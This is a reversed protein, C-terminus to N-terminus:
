VGEYLTDYRIRFGLYVGGTTVAYQFINDGKRLLLWDSDKELCGIINTRNGNRVLTIRKEGRVTSIEISDGLGFGAGTLSAVKDTDLVMAEQTEANAVTIKGSIAGSADLIMEFGTDADGEYWITQLSDDTLLGFQLAGPATERDGAFAEPIENGFSFEFTPANVAFTVETKRRDGGAHFRPNPCLISIQATEEQSFINIENAEVYGLIDCIRQDTEISLSVPKKVPFYRYSLHRAEEVTEAFLLGLTMLINRCPLRASNFIGGDATALSAMNITGTVPGLGDISYVAFGSKEPKALEMKISEGLPNTVTVSHIM